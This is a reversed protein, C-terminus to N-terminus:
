SGYPETGGFSASDAPMETKAEPVSNNVQPVSKGPEVTSKPSAKKSPVSQTNVEDDEASDGTGTASKGSTQGAKTEKESKGKTQGKPKVKSKKVPKVSKGKQNVGKTSSKPASITTQLQDTPLGWGLQKAAVWGIILVTLIIAGILLIKKM